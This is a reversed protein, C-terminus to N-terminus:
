GRCSGERSGRGFVPSYRVLDWFWIDARELESSGILLPDGM